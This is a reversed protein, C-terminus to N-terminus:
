GGVIAASPEVARLEGVTGPLDALVAAIQRRERAMRGCQELLREVESAPVPAM